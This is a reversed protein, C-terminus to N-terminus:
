PLPSLELHKELRTVRKATKMNEKDLTHSVLKIEEKLDKHVNTLRIDINKVRDKVEELDEQLRIRSMRIESGLEERITQSENEIEERMVKRMQKLDDPTLM